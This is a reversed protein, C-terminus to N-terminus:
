SINLSLTVEHNSIWHDFMSCGQVGRKAIRDSERNDVLEHDRVTRWNFELSQSTELRVQQGVVQVHEFLCTEYHARMRAAVGPATVNAEDTAGEAFELEGNVPRRIVGEKDARPVRRAALESRRQPSLDGSTAGLGRSSM